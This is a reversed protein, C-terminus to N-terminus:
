RNSARAESPQRRVKDTKIKKANRATRQVVVTTTGKALDSRPSAVIDVDHGLGNLCGHLKAESIGRLNGRLIAHVKAQSVGMLEAAQRQTLSRAEIIRSLQLALQAKVLSEEPNPLGLDAFVNGSSEEHETKTM